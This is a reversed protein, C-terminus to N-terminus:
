VNVWSGRVTTSATYVVGSSSPTGDTMTISRILQVVPTVALRTQTGPTNRETKKLVHTEVGWKVRGVPPLAFGIPNYNTLPGPGGQWRPAEFTVDQALLAAIVADWHITVLVTAAVDVGAVPAGNDHTQFTEGIWLEFTQPMPSPTADFLELWACKFTIVCKTGANDANCQSLFTEQEYRYLGQKVMFKERSRPITQM